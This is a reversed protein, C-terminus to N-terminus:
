LPKVQCMSSSYCSDNFCLEHKLWQESKLCNVLAKLRWFCENFASILLM